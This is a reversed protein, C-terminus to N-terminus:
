IEGINEIDVQLLNGFHKQSIEEPYTYVEIDKFFVTSHDLGYDFLDGKLNTTDVEVVVIEDLPTGHIVLFMCAGAFSDAFYILRDMGLPKLAGDAMISMAKEWTTAHYIKDPINM